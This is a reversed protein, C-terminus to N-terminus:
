SGTFDPQMVNGPVGLGARAGFAGGVETRWALVEGEAVYPLLPHTTDSM